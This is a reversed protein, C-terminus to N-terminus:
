VSKMNIRNVVTDLSVKKLMEQGWDEKELCKKIKPKSIPVSHEIMQVFLKKIGQLETAKFVNRISSSVTPPIIDSSTESEEQLIRSVRHLTEVETPLCPLEPSPSKGFDSFPV